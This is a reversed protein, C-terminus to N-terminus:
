PPCSGALVCSAFPEVDLEDIVGDNSPDLDAACKEVPIADGNVVMEAFRSIDSGDVLGDRNVDGRTCDVEVFFGGPLSGSQGDPNTVVVDWYGDVATELDINCGITTSNVVGVSTAYIDAEGAKALKVTTTGFVQFNFGYVGLSSISRGSSGKVPITSSVIPATGQAAVPGTAILAYGQNGSNVAAARVTISWIGAAPSSVHVQEVNNYPDKNGGPVSAGGSFSNGLYLSANPATVELDLDNIDARATGTSVSAPPDTWVLTVRFQETSGTVNLNYTTSQGTSFGSANRVDALVATKRTDGSFYLANDVLLRGWGERDSPYGAVGTMDVASNLLTAKILAGSPTFANAPTASGSPCFGEMYYQRVLLAVGTVAPCAMSTGTLNATTCVSGSGSASTTGCGPAYIEPKRRGGLAPPLPQTPGIGGSCHNAQNPTDSSAGVALLNKANEPNKLTGTNTVAFLVLAEENDYSFRDVSTCMANYATTNDDGWSNTFCRAGQGYQTTAANYFGTETFAPIPSHAIKAGYAMGRISGTSGQYDDGAGTDATHTGHQNYGLTTNYAVVKRHSPGPTNNVPDFFACHSMNIRGDMHGLVQGVGTIGNAWVPTSDTVNSQVIWRTTSNRLTIEPAEEVFQVDDLAALGAVDASKLTASLVLTGGEDEVYHLAAGALQGIRELVKGAGHHEFLTIIVPIDGRDAMAQREASEHVRRGLEPDLKWEPRFEGVWTVFPIAAVLDPRVGRLSVVYAYDPLYEGLVLGARRLAARREATVSSDLQVVYVKADDFAAPPSAKLNPLQATDVAGTNLALRGKQAQPGGIVV